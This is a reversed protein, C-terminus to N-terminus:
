ATEFHLSFDTRRATRPRATQALVTGVTRTNSTLESSIRETSHQAATLKGTLEAAIQLQAEQKELLTQQAKNLDTLIQNQKAQNTYANLVTGLAVVVNLLSFVIFARNQQQTSRPRFGAWYPM